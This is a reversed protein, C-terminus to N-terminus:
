GCTELCMGESEAIGITGLKSVVIRWEVHAKTAVSMAFEWVNDVVFQDPDNDPMLWAKLDHADGRADICAAFLWKGCESVRYGVHLMYHRDLVDLTSPHAELSYSIKRQTRPLAFAPESFLARVKDGTPLLVRSMSRDVPLVARDYVSNALIELGAHHLAPNHLAGQILSGPLLSMLIPADPYTKKVKKMASFVQRLPPSALNMMRTPTIIYFVMPTDFDLLSAIFSVPLKDVGFTVRLSSIYFCV